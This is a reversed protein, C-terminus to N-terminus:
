DDDRGDSRRSARRDEEEELEHLSREDRWWIMSLVLDDALRRSDEHVRHTRRTGSFWQDASVEGSGFAIKRSAIDRAFTAPGPDQPWLSQPIHPGRRFWKRRLGDSAVLVAPSSGIEVVRIATSIFSTQFLDSLDAVTQLTVDRGEVRPKLMSWPMLLEAAYDNARTERSSSGFAQDPNCVFAVEGADLLWHALEHAASFRERGRSTNRSVTIIAEDGIGIIRAEAGSLSAYTVTAGCHQAIAEVDIEAPDVIGLENLLDAPARFRPAVIM